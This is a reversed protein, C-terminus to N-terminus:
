NNNTKCKESTVCRLMETIREELAELETDIRGIETM